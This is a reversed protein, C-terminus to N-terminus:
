TTWKYFCLFFRPLRYKNGTGCSSARANGKTTSRAVCFGVGFISWHGATWVVIAFICIGCQVDVTAEDKVVLQIQLIGLQWARLALYVGKRIDHTGQWAGAVMQFRVESLSCSCIYVYNWKLAWKQLLNKVLFYKSHSETLKKRRYTVVQSESYNQKKICCNLPTFFFLLM